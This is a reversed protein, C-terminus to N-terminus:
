PAVEITNISYYGTDVKCSWAENSVLSRAQTTLMPVPSNQLLIAKGGKYFYAGTKDTTALMLYGGNSPVIKPNRLGLVSDSSAAILGGTIAEINYTSSPSTSSCDITITLHPASEVAATVTNGSKGLISINSTFGTSAIEASTGVSATGSGNDLLHNAYVKTSSSSLICVKTSSIEIWDGIAVVAASINVSSISPTTGSVSVLGVTPSGSWAIAIRGSSLLM